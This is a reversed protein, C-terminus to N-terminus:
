EKRKKSFYSTPTIGFRQRFLLSFYSESKMGVALAIAGFNSHAKQELLYMAELLRAEQLYQNPTMGTLRKVEQFFATRGMLMQSALSEATFSTNGLNDIVITELKRLWSLEESTVPIPGIGLAQDSVTYLSQELNFLNRAILLQVISLLEDEDFPKILVKDVVSDLGVIDSKATLVMIPINKYQDHLRLKKALQYGDMDPMMIDTIILDPLPNNGLYTLVELGTGAFHVQFDTSLIQELFQQMEQNDEVLLISPVRHKSISKRWKQFLVPFNGEKGSASTINVEQYPAMKLGKFKKSEEAPLFVFFTTGVGIESEVLIQGQMLETLEKCLALGIGTGGEVPADIQQTQFFREFIHPLDEPHIGRGTDQVKLQVQGEGYDLYISVRGKTPTYKIANSLLNSFITRVHGEDLLLELKPSVQSHYNLSIKKTSGLLRFEGVLERVLADVLVSKRHVSLSHNELSFLDLASNVLQLLQKANRQAITLSKTNEQGLGGKHLVHRIPGLILTIPTRLEHTLNSFFHSKQIDKQKLQLAQQEILAKDQEIKITRLKVEHELERQRDLLLRNRLRFALHVAFMMIVLALVLFWKRLYFPAHVQIPLSYEQDYYMGSSSIARVKLQYNGYPLGALQVENALAPLWQDHLGEIKYRYSIGSTETYDTLAFKLKLFVQDPYLDICGLRQITPLLSSEQKDSLSLASADVLNLIGMRSEKFADQFDAPNLVTIGNMSGFFLTGDPLRLHSIRNFENHTVGDKTQYYRVKGSVYDLQGIGADSSFWVSGFNDPYVSYINMNILGEAEGYEQLIGIASDWFILGNSTALWWGGARGESIHRINDVPLYDGGVGGSWFRRVIGRNSDLVYIGTSSVMWITRGNDFPIMQYVDSYRLSEYGNYQEFVTIAGANRDFYLIGRNNGLWIQHKQPLISWINALGKSKPLEYDIRKGSKPDLRYFTSLANLLSGDLDEALAYYGLLDRSVVRLKDLQPTISYTELSANFYVTGDTHVIMGRCPREQTKDLSSPSNWVLRKFKSYNRVVKFIGGITGVWLVGQRDLFIDFSIRPGNSNKEKSFDHTLEGNAKFVKLSGQNIIWIEETEQNYAFNSNDRLDVRYNPISAAISAYIVPQGLVIKAYDVKGVTWLTGNPLVYPRHSVDSAIHEIVQKDRLIGTYQLYYDSKKEKSGKKNLWIVSDNYTTSCFSYGAGNGSFLIEVENGRKVKSLQGQKDLLLVSQDPGQAIDVYEGKCARFLEPVQQVIEKTRSHIWRFFVGEERVIKIWLLGDADEFCIRNQYVVSNFEWEMVQEFQSGDFLDIGEGTVLWILGRSDQFTQYVHNNSLGDKTTYNQIEYLANEQATLRVSLGVLLLVSAATVQLIRSFRVHFKVKSRLRVLRQISIEKRM